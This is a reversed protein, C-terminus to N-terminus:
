PMEARRYPMGGRAPFSRRHPPSHGVCALQLATAGLFRSRGNNGHGFRQACQQYYGSCNADYAALTPTIQRGVVAERIAAEMCLTGIVMRVLTLHM